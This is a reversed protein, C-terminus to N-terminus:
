ETSSNLDVPNSLPNPSKSVQTTRVMTQDVTQCREPPSQADKAGPGFQQPAKTIWCLTADELLSPNPVQFQYEDRIEDKSAYKTNDPANQLLEYKNDM